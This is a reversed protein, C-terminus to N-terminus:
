EQQEKLKQAKLKKLKQLKLKKIRDAKSTDVKEWNSEDIDENDTDDFPSEEQTKVTSDFAKKIEEYSPKMNIVDDLAFTKDLIVDPVKEERDIFRHGLYNTNKAGKGKRKWVVSVGPENKTGPDSFWLYGGGEPLEAIEKIKEEMFFHAADFIQVGLKETEKTRRDWILYISRRKPAIAAWEEKPLRQANMYECIPCPENFNRHPCVYPQGMKGVGRHVWLDLVYHFEGKEAMPNNKEDLPMNDGCEFPLIDIKQLGEECKFFRVGEPIKSKKFITPFASSGSKPAKNARKKLGAKKKNMRDRFSVM